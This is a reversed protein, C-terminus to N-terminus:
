FRSDLSQRWTATMPGIMLRCGQVGQQWFASDSHGWGHPLGVVGPTMEDSVRVPVPGSHVKSELIAIDGDRVGARAADVPHVSLVCREHVAMLVPVNHM